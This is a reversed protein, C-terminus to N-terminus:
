FTTLPMPGVEGKRHCAVCRRELIPQVDAFTIAAALLFMM